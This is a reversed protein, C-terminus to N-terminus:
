KNKKTTKATSPNSCPKSNALLHEVVQAVGGTRVCPKGWTHNFFFTFLIISFLYNKMGM